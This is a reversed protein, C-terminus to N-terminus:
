SVIKIRVSDTGPASDFYVTATNITTAEWAVNYYEYPSNVNRAQL